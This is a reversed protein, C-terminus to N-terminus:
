RNKASMGGTDSENEAVIQTSVTIAVAGRLARVFVGLVGVRPRLSLRSGSVGDSGDSLLANSVSEMELEFISARLSTRSEKEVDGDFNTACIPGSTEM